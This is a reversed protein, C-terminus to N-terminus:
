WSATASCSHFGDTTEVAICRVAYWADEALDLSVQYSSTAVAVIDSLSASSTASQWDTVYFWDSESPNTKFTAQVRFRTSGGNGGTGADRYFSFSVRNAGAIVFKGDDYEGRVNFWPTINTSTATTSTSYLSQNTSTAFFTYQLLPVGDIQTPQAVADADAKETNSFLVIAGVIILTVAMLATFGHKQLTANMINEPSPRPRM